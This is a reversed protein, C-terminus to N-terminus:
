ADEALEIFTLVQDVDCFKGFLNILGTEHLVDLATLGQFKCNHIWISQIAGVKGSLDDHNGHISFIPM